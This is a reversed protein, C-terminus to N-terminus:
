WFLHKREARGGANRYHVARREIGCGTSRGKTARQRCKRKEMQQRAVRLSSLREVEGSMTTARLTQRTWLILFQRSMSHALKRRSFNAQSSVRASCCPRNDMEFLLPTGPPKDAPPIAQSAAFDFRLTEDGARAHPVTQLLILSPLPQNAREAKEEPRNLNSCRGTEWLPKESLSEKSDL